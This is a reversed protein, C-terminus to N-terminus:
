DLYGAGTVREARKSLEEKIDSITFSTFNLDESGEVFIQYISNLDGLALFDEETLEDSLSKEYFSFIINSSKEVFSIMNGDINIKYMFYSNIDSARKVNRLTQYYDMGQQKDAHDVLMNLNRAISFENSIFELYINNMFKQNTKVKENLIVNLTLSLILLIIFGIKLIKSNM